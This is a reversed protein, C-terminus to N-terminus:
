GTCSVEGAAWLNLITTRGELDVWVGGCSYHAGPVVPIPERTLDVGHRLCNSHVFPFRERIWEAPKHSIDLYVCPAGTTLMEQHIAQSVRDRPALEPTPYDPLYRHLFREGSPNVLVAGEGRLAESV